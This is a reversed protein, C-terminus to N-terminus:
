APRKCAQVVLGPTTPESLRTTATPKEGWLDDESDRRGERHVAAAAAVAAALQTEPRTAREAAPHDAHRPAAADIPTKLAAWRRDTRGSRWTSNRTPEEENKKQPPVTHSPQFLIGVPPNHFITQYKTFKRRNQTMEM